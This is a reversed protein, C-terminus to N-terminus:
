LTHFALIYDSDFPNVMVHILPDKEM